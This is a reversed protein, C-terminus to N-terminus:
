NKGRKEGLLPNKETDAPAYLYLGVFVPIFGIVTMLYDAEFSRLFYPLGVFVLLSVITCNLSAKAHLGYSHRRLLFYALNLIFTERLIGLGFAVGYIITMKTLNILFVEIGLKIKLFAKRDLEKHTAIKEALGLATTEISLM